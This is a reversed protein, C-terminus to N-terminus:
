KLFPYLTLRTQQTSSCQLYFGLALLADCSTETRVPCIISSEAPWTAALDTPLFLFRERTIVKRRIGKLHIWMSYALITCDHLLTWHSEHLSVTHIVNRVHFLWFREREDALRMSRGERGGQRGDKRQHVKRRVKGESPKSFVQPM